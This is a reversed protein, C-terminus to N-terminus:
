GRINRFNLDVRKLGGNAPAEYATGLFRRMQAVVTANTAATADNIVDAKGLDAGGVFASFVPSGIAGADTLTARFQVYCLGAFQIYSYNGATWSPNLVIGAPYVAEDGTGTDVTTVQWLNPAATPDWYVIQGRVVASAGSAMKVYRFHGGYVATAGSFVINADDLILEQGVQGGGLLPGSPGFSLGGGAVADNVTNIYAPIRQILEVSM